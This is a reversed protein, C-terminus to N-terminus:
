YIAAELLRRAQALLDSKVFGRTTFIMRAAKTATRRLSEVQERLESEAAFAVDFMQQLNRAEIRLVENDRLATALEAQATKAKAVASALQAELSSVRAAQVRLQILEEEERLFGLFHESLPCTAGVLQSMLPSLTIEEKTVKYQKAFTRVLDLLFDVLGEAAEDMAHIGCSELWSVIDGSPFLRMADAYIGDPRDTVFLETKVSKDGTWSREEGAYINGVFIRSAKGPIPRQSFHGEQFYTTNHHTEFGLTVLQEWSRRSAAEMVERGVKVGLLSIFEHYFSKKSEM